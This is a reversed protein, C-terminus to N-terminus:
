PRGLPPPPPVRTLHAEAEPTSTPHRAGHGRAPAGKEILHLLVLTAGCGEALRFALPLAAEALHSGDLPVLVRRFTPSSVARSAGSGETGLGTPRDPELMPM